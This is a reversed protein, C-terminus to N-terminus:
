PEGYNESLYEEVASSLSYFLDNMDPKNPTFGCTRLKLLKVSLGRACHNFFEDIEIDTSDCRIVGEIYRDDDIEYEFSQEVSRMPEFDICECAVKVIGGYHESLITKDTEM